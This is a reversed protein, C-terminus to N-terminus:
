DGYLSRIEKLKNIIHLRFEEPELVTCDSTFSLIRQTALFKNHYYGEIVYGKESTEIVKENEVLSQFGYTKLLFKVRVEKSNINCKSLKKSIITKIRNISLVLPSQKRADFGHLYIKENQYVLKQAVFDLETEYKSTPKKYILNLIRNQECDVILEKLFNIEYFKLVSIGLLSEKLNEDCIYSALKKFLDDYEILQHINGQIKVHKYLKSLLDIEDKTINFTFPHKLLVYKNGTKNSCRAIECGINKLTSFDIRIIDESNSEEYLNFDIYAQKIEEFSRPAVILLGLLVLSRAGTLSIQNLNKSVAKIAM